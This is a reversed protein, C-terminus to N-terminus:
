ADQIDKKNKRSIHVILLVSLILAILPFVIINLTKPNEMRRQPTPAFELKIQKYNVNIGLDNSITEIDEESLDYSINDNYTLGRETIIKMQEEDQTLLKKGNSDVISSQNQIDIINNQLLVNLVTLDDKDIDFISKDDYFKFVLADKGNRVDSFTISITDYKKLSDNEANLLAKDIIATINDNSNVGAPVVYLNNSSDFMFLLKGDKNAYGTFSYKDSDNEFFLGLLSDDNIDVNSVVNIIGTDVLYKWATKEILPTNNKDIFVGSLDINISTEKAYVGLPLLFIVLLLLIYFRKM